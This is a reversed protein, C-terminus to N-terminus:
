DEEDDNDLYYDYWEGPTIGTMVFERETPCLFPFADQILAGDNWAAFGEMFERESCNFEMTHVEKTLVSQKTYEFM